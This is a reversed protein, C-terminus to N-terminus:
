KDFRSGTGGRTRRAQEMEWDKGSTTAKKEKKDEMDENELGVKTVKFTSHIRNDKNEQSYESGQRVSMQEVEICLMYKQGVKMTKIEPLDEDTFRITPFVRNNKGGEISYMMKEGKVKHMKEEAM